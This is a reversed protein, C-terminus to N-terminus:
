EGAEGWDGGSVEAWQKRQMREERTPSSVNVGQGRPVAGLGRRGSIRGVHAGPPSMGPIRSPSSTADAHSAVSSSAGPQPIGSPGAQLVRHEAEGPRGRMSAQAEPKSPGAAAEPPKPTGKMSRAGPGQTGSRTIGQPPAGEAEEGGDGAAADDEIGGAEGQDDPQQVGFIQDAM